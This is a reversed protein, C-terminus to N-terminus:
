SQCEFEPSTGESIGGAHTAAESHEGAEGDVKTADEIERILQELRVTSIQM